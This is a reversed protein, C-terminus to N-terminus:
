GWKTDDEIQRVSRASSDLPRGGQEALRRRKSFSEQIRAAEEESRRRSQRDEQMIAEAEEVRRQQRELDKQVSRLNVNEVPVTDLMAAVSQARSRLQEAESQVRSRRRETTIEENLIRTAEEAARAREERLLQERYQKRLLDRDYQPGQLRLSPTDWNLPSAPNEIFAPTKSNRIEGRSLYPAPTTPVSGLPPPSSEGLEFRQRSPAQRQEQPRGASIPRFMGSQPVNVATRTDLSPLAATSPPPKVPPIRSVAGTAAGQLARPSLAVFPMPPPIPPATSIPQQQTPVNRRPSQIFPPPPPPPQTLRKQEQQPTSQQVPKAPSRM